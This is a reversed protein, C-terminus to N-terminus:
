EWGSSTRIFYAELSPIEPAKCGVRKSCGKDQDSYSEHGLIEPAECGPMKSRGKDRDSYAENRLIQVGQRRAKKSTTQVSARSETFTNVFYAEISPIEPAKCGPM